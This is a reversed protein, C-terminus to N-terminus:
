LETYAYQLADQLIQLHSGYNDELYPVTDAWGNGWDDSPCSELHGHGWHPAVIIPPVTQLIRGCDTKPSSVSIDTTKPAVVEVVRPVTKGGLAVIVTPSVAEIEAALHHKCHEFEASRTTNSSGKPRCKISDSIWTDKIGIDPVRALARALVRGGNEPRLFVEGSADSYEDFTTYKDWNVRHSPEIGVFMIEASQFNFYGPHVQQSRGDIQAPCSDCYGDGNRADKVLDAPSYSM